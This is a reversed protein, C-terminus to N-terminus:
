SKPHTPPIPYNAPDFLPKKPSFYDCAQRTALTPQEWAGCLDKRNDRTRTFQRCQGCKFM